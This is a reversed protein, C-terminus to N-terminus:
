LPGGTGGQIYAATKSFYEIFVDGCKNATQTFTPMTGVLTLGSIPPLTPTFGGTGNQCVDLILGQGAWNGQPITAPASASFTLVQLSHGYAPLVLTTATGIAVPVPAVDNVAAPTPNGCQWVGAIRTAVAGGGAGLCVSTQQCDTCLTITGNVQPPTIGLNAFTVGTSTFSLAKPKSEAGARALGCLALVILLTLAGRVVSDKGKGIRSPTPTLDSKMKVIQRM